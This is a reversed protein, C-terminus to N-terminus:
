IERIKVVGLAQAPPWTVLTAPDASDLEASVPERGGVVDIGVRHAPPHLGGQHFTVLKGMEYAEPTPLNDM